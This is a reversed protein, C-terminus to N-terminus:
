IDVMCSLLCSRYLILVAKGLIGFTTDLALDKNHTTFIGGIIMSDKGSLFKDNFCYIFKNTHLSFSDTRPTVDLKTAVTDVLPVTAAVDFPVNGYVIGFTEFRRSIVTNLHFLLSMAEKSLGDGEKQM